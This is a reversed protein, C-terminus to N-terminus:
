LDNLEPLRDYCQGCLISLSYGETRWLEDEPEIKANCAECHEHDWGGPEIRFHQPDYEEGGYPWKVVYGREVPYLRHDLQLDLRARVPPTPGGPVPADAVLADQPKYYFGRFKRSRLKRLTADRQDAAFGSDL